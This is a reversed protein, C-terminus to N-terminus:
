EGGWNLRSVILGTSFQFGALGFEDIVGTLLSIGKAMNLSNSPIRTVIISNAIRNSQIRLDSMSTTLSTASSNNDNHNSNNNENNNKINNNTTSSSTTFTTTIANKNNVTSLTTFTTTINNANTIHIIVNSKIADVM